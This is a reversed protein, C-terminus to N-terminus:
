IEHILDKLNRKPKPVLMKVPYGACLISSPSLETSLVERIKNEDLMGIWISSLGLAHAALQSYAAALTADQQSFKRITEPPFNLKIRKPNMCFVLVVPANVYPQNNAAEVLKNKIEQNKIHYIEFGQFGGATPATDAAAFIMELKWEEVDRNEFKRQSRRNLMVNFINTQVIDAVDHSPVEEKPYILQTNKDTFMRAFIDSPFSM